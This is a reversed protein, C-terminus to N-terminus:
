FDIEESQLDLQLFTITVFSTDNNVEIEYPYNKLNICYELAELNIEFFLSFKPMRVKMKADHLISLM